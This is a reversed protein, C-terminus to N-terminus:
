EDHKPETVQLNVSLSASVSIHAGDPVGALESGIYQRLNEIVAEGMTSKCGQRAQKVQDYVRQKVAAADGTASITVHM